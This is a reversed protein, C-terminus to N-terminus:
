RDIQRDIKTQKNTPQNTWCKALQKSLQDMYLAFLYSVVSYMKTVEQHDICFRRRLRDIYIRIVSKRVQLNERQLHNTDDYWVERNQHLELSLSFPIVYM